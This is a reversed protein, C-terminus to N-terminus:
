LDLSTFEHEQDSTKTLICVQSNDHAAALGHVISRSDVDGVCAVLEGFQVDGAFTAFLGLGSGLMVGCYHISAKCVSARLPVDM